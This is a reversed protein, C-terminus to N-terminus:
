VEKRRKREGGRIGGRKSLEARTFRWGLVAEANWNGEELISWVFHEQENRDADAAFKLRVAGAKLLNRCRPAKDTTGNAVQVVEAECWIDVARKKRKDKGTPDNVPAWYRWRIELM